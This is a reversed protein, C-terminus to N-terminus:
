EFGLEDLVKRRFDALAQAYTKNGEYYQMVQDYFLGDIYRDYETWSDARATAGAPIFYEYMNQGGLFDLRGDSREMVVRSAVADKTPNAPDLIGNAFLYQFGSESTDLTIWELLQGVAERKEQSSINANGALWTGGWTWPIPSSTIAWDGYTDGSYGAIIYNLLWAPGLYAFVKNQNMETFWEGGWQQAGLWYGNDNMTKAIDFAYERAPDSVLRDGVIWGQSASDCFLQYIDGFGAVAYYGRVKLDAAGQLFRDWGPGMKAAITAPDDTLWTDIAISRRYILCSVVEQYCLAVVQGNRTGVDVGYPAIQANALKSQFDPILSEYPAAYSSLSGQTFRLVYESELAYIDPMDAGGSRLAQELQSEYSDYSDTVYVKIEWAFSPNLEKYRNLADPIESNFTWVNIVRDEDNSGPQPDNGVFSSSDDDSSSEPPPPSDNRSNSDSAAALGDSNDPVVSNAGGLNRSSNNGSLSWVTIGVVV